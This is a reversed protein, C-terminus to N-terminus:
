LRLQRGYLNSWHSADRTGQCRCVLMVVRLWHVRLHSQVIHEAEQLVCENM